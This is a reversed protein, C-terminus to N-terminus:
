KKQFIKQPLSVLLSFVLPPILVFFISSGVLVSYLKNELIGLDYLVRILVISTSFKVCFSIGLLFANRTGLEKRTVFFSALINSLTVAAVIVLIPIPYELIYKMNISSGVWVFFLPGFLSYAFTKIEHEVEEFREKLKIFSRILIGGIIATIATAEANKGIFLFLFFIAFVFIFIAQLDLDELFDRIRKKIKWLLLFILVFGLVYFLIIGFDINIKSTAGLYVSILIVGLFELLNDFVGIKLISQGLKTKLLGCKDLIPLLIEEGVTAFILAIVLAIIWGYGFIFHFLIGDVLAELLVILITSKIIFSGTKKINKFDIEFGILFLLFYMGLNALFIFNESSIVGYFPNKIALLIGFLLPAFMPPIKIKEFVRGLFFSFLYVVALFIIIDTM